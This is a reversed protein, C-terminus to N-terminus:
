AAAQSHSRVAVLAKSQHLDSAFGTGYLCCALLNAIPPPTPVKGALVLSIWQAAGKAEAQEPLHGAHTVASVAEADFLLTPEGSRFYVIAPRRLPDAYAEGEAGHFLLAHEHHMALAAAFADREADDAAPVLKLGEGGFPDALRAVHHACNPVGLRARLALLQALAASLLATPVFALRSTELAAQAERLSACPLIGLERFVAASAVRGHAELPGHVLVPVGFRALMLALLPMLNARARAGGYSPIVVTRATSPASLRNLRGQLARRFGAIETPALQKMALAALGAGLEIEAIGGDLMASFLEFADIEALDHEEAHRGALMKLARAVIMAGGTERVQLLQVTESLSSLLRRALSTLAGRRRTADKLALDCHVRWSAHM